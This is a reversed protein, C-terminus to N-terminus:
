AMPDTGACLGSASDFSAAGGDIDGSACTLATKSPTLQLTTAGAHASATVGNSTWSAFAPATSNGWFEDYQHSAAFATPAQRAVLTAGVAVIAVIVIAVRAPWGLAWTWQKRHSHRQM